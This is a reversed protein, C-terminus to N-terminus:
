RKGKQIRGERQDEKGRERDAKGREKDATGREEIDGIREWM